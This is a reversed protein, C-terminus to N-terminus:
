PFYKSLANKRYEKFLILLHSLISKALKIFKPPLKDVGPSSNSKLNDTCFNIEQVIIEQLLLLQMCSKNHIEFSFSNSFSLKKAMNSGIKAFYKCVIDLFKKSDTKVKDRIM